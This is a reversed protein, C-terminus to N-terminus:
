RREETYIDPWSNTEVSASLLRGRLGRGRPLTSADENELFGLKNGTQCFQIDPHQEAICVNRDEYKFVKLPPGAWAINEPFDPTNGFLLSLGGTFQLGAQTPGDDTHLFRDATVVEDEGRFGDPFYVGVHRKSPFTRMYSNLVTGVMAGSAPLHIRAELGINDRISRMIDELLNGPAGGMDGETVRRKFALHWGPDSTPTVYAPELAVDDAKLSPYWHFGPIQSLLSILEHFEKDNGDVMRKARLVLARQTLFRKAAVLPHWPGILFFSNKSADERWQVICDLYTLVFSQPWDLRKQNEQVYAQLQCHAVLYESLAQELPQRLDSEEALYFPHIAYEPHELKAGTTQLTAIVLQRFLDRRDAYQRLMELAHDPLTVSRIASADSGRITRAFDGCAEEPGDSELFFDALVPRWGVRDEFCRALRIRRRSKENLGGLRSYADTAHGTHIALIEKARDKKASALLQRLEDELTFEGREIDEAEFTLSVWRERTPM